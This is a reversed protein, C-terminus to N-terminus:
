GNHGRPGKGDIVIETATCTGIGVLTYGKGDENLVFELGATSEVLPEEEPEENENEGDEESFDASVIRGEYDFETDEM